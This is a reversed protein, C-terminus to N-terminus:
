DRFVISIKLNEIPDLEALIFFARDSSEVREKVVQNIVKLTEKLSYTLDDLALTKVGIDMDQFEGTESYYLRCYNSVYAKMAQRCFGYAVLQIVIDQRM